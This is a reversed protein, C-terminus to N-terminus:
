RDQRLRHVNDLLYEKSVVINVDDIRPLIQGLDGVEAGSRM